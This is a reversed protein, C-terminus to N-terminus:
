TGATQPRAMAWSRPTIKAGRAKALGLDELFLSAAGEGLVFGDRTLDFPRSVPSIPERAASQRARAHQRFRRPRGRAPADRDVRLHDRHLRGAPDGRRGGRRIPGPPAPPCSACTTATAGTEIPLVGCRTSWPTPSSRRPSRGPAANRSRFYNDIMMTKAAPASGFVVGVQDTPTTSRSGPIPWRRSPRPSGTTSAPRAAGCPRPTWGTPPPSTTSRAPSTSTTAPLTSSRSRALARGAKSSTPRADALDRLEVSGAVVLVEGALDVVEGGGVPHVGLGHPEAM